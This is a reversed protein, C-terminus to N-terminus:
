LRGEILDKSIFIFYKMFVQYKMSFSRTFNSKLCDIGGGIREREEGEQRKITEKTKEGSHTNHSIGPMERNINM